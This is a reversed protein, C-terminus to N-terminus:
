QKIADIKELIEDYKPSKKRAYIEKLQELISLDNPEMKLAKEFYTEANDLYKIVEANVVEAEAKNGAVSLENWQVFKGDYLKLYCYGLNYVVIFNGPVIREARKLYDEAKLLENDKIYLHAVNILADGDTMVSPPLNQLLQRAKVSDKKWYYDVEAVLINPNGPLTMKGSNIIDLAKAEKGDNKYQEILRIYVSVNTSHDKIAKEYYIIADENRNLMELNYAYYYYLEGNLPHEPTGMEYSEVAKHLVREAIEYNGKILEEVGHVLLLTYLASKGKAPTLMDSSEINKNIQIAKTFADYAKEPADPFQIMYSEDQQKQMYEKDALFLYINGMYLWTQAKTALKEDVVCLDIFEKAKEYNKEIYANYAKLLSPKQAFSGLVISMLLTICLLRKM